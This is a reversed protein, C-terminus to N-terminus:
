APESISPAWNLSNHMCFLFLEATILNPEPIFKDDKMRFMLKTLNGQQSSRKIALCLPGMKWVEDQAQSESLTLFPWSDTIGLTHYPSTRDYRSSLGTFQKILM